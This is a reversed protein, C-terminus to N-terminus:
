SHNHNADTLQFLQQSISKFEPAPTTSRKIYWDFLDQDAQELLQAFLIQEAQPQKAYQENVYREFLLDLELMGRRCAWRLRSLPMPEQM